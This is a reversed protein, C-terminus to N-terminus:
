KYMCVNILFIKEEGLVSSRWFDELHLIKVEM